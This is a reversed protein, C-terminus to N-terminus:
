FRATLSTLWDPMLEVLAAEVHKDIGTLIAAGFLCFALGLTVKAYQGGSLLKSRWKMLMQRSALGLGILPFAAGTGFLLMTLVVMGLSQGQAALLSAAGLTPGACPSWVTGLLLGIAFQGALGNNDLASIQRDVYGGLSGGAVAFQRQLRPVTLVAGITIMFGAAVRRFVDGDLGISFGVTAVFLGIAVFSSVVGSAMAVPGARHRSAATTMVIPLIPLICPSLISLLGALFALGLTTLM